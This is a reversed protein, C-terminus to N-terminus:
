AGGSTHQYVRRGSPTLISLTWRVSSTESEPEDAEPPAEGDTTSGNQALEELLEDVRTDIWRRLRPRFPWALPRLWWRLSLVAALEVQVRTPRLVDLHMEAEVSGTWRHQLELRLIGGAELAALDEASPRTSGARRYELYDGVITAPDWPGVLEVVDQRRVTLFPGM